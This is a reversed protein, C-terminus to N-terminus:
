VAHLQTPLHMRAIAKQNPEIRAWIARFGVFSSM